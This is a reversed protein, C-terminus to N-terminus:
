LAQMQKKLENVEELLKFNAAKQATIISYCAKLENQAIKLSEDDTGRRLSSDSNSETSLRSHTLM